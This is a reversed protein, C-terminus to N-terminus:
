AEWGSHWILLAPLPVEDATCRYPGHVAVWANAQQGPREVSEFAVGEARIVAGEPLADLQEVTRITCAQQLDTLADERGARYADRMSGNSWEPYRDSPDYLPIATSLEADVQADTLEPLRPSAAGVDPVAQGQEDAASM